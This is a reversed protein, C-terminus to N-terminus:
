VEELDWPYTDGMAWCQLHRFNRVTMHKHGCLLGPDVWIKHGAQQIKRCLYFDEGSRTGKTFQFWPPEIDDLVSRHILICDMGVGDVELLEDMTIPVSIYSAQARTLDAKHRKVFEIFEQVLPMYYTGRGEAHSFRYMQPEPTGARKMSVGSIVKKGWGVLRRYSDPPVIVDDDMFLLWESNTNEILENRSQDAPKHPNTSIQADPPLDLGLLNHFEPLDFQGSLTPIAVVVSCIKGSKVLDGNAREILGVRHAIRRFLQSHDYHMPHNPDCGFCSRHYLFGGPKLLDYFKQLVGELADSHIHELVDVAAIIDFGANKVDDLSEEIKIDLLRDEFRQSAFARLIPNIDCYVLNNHRMALAISLSGIGGGFDLIKKRQYNMLPDIHFKFQPTMNWLTLDYLYDESSRYFEDVEESSAPADKNWKEALAKMPDASFRKEVEEVDVELYRALERIVGDDM